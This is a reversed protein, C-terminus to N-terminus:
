VMREFIGPDHVMEIKQIKGSDHTMLSAVRLPPQPPTFVLNYISFAHNDNIIQATVDVRDINAFVKGYTELFSERTHIEGSPGVIQAQPHLTNSLAILDGAKMAAFHAEALRASTQTEIVLQSGRISQASEKPSDANQIQGVRATAEIRAVRDDEQSM